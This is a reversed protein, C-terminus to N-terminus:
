VVVGVTRGPGPEHPHRSPLNAGVPNLDVAAPPHSLVSIRRIMVAAAKARTTQAPQPSSETNAGDVVEAGAIVVDDDVDVVAADDVDVVVDLVLVVAVVKESEAYKELQAVLEALKPRGKKVEIAVGGGTLFDVRRRPGLRVESEHRIGAHLLAESVLPHLYHLEDGLLSARITRLSALVDEFHSREGM